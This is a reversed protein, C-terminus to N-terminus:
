ANDYCVSNCDFRRKRVADSSCLFVGPGKHNSRRSCATGSDKPMEEIAMATDIVRKIREDGNYAEQLQRSSKLAQEITIKLVNPIMKALENEEAFTLSLAKAVSRVANKAKLTNFTVIQAVHDEGYKRKVYDIVEGRRRECFDMDIDPMSVRDPNLFREFYLSYKIPDIDTIKLCYSVISGAASGRGPGVPIGSNKAYSVFDSVILFYDTFGMRNIMDLEYDLQDSNKKDPNDGYRERLGKECLERLYDASNVGEPLKFEPLHYHNFEFELNCMDAIKQTNDISEPVDAFLGRMEEESKIYFEETEFRMRDEDNVTKGTQICLLIDHMEADERKLYHADNTAVLPIGTERSM